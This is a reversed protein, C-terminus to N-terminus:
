NSNLFTRIEGKPTGAVSCHSSNAWDPPGASNNEELDKNVKERVYFFLRPKVFATQYIPM